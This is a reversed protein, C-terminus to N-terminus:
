GGRLLSLGFAIAALAILMRLGASVGTGTGLLCRFGAGLVGGFAMMAALVGVAFLLLYSMGLWPDAATALPALALLAASGATGHLLGVLLARFNQRAPLGPAQPHTGGVGHGHLQVSAAGVRLRWLMTVGLAMLVWGVLHEAAASLASPVAMGALLVLAGIVLLAAGHGLAWRACLGLAARRGVRADGLNAVALLHDPDLAHLLGLGFGMSMLTFAPTPLALM